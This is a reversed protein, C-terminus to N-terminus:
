EYRLAEVPRARSVLLAHGTVTVLAIGLALASALLFQLPGLEVHYAFGELWRQMFFWAVPWAILNAVLVPRAFQWGIFRLIDARSAGMCKRIGIERTRREATFIALGLLGLSAVVIAVACIAAFLRAQRSIDSYLDDLMQSLFRGRFQLGGMVEGYAAEVGRLTQPMQTGDLRLYLSFAKQPDVYYGTPAIRERISGLSFDPVVGIIRSPRPDPRQRLSPGDSGPRIWRRYQGVAEAPTAYGLARAAAENLVISPHDGAAQGGRELVVDEGHERDPLRGALPAIGLLRLHDVDVPSARVDVVSGDPSTFVMSAGTLDWESGCSASRVGPLSAVVERLGPAVACALQVTFVQDGPVRLQEELAFRTQRHVTLTAVLMAVLTAFQLVVMAQRLRGPGGPLSVVGKLVNVPRFRSLVLAPYSGAALGVVLWLAFVGGALRPDRAFDFGIGRGLLANVGPLLLWVAALAVLMALAASLLCEALFQAVIQRPMAGVSKRVGVEVARGAARATMMSIFNGAAAILIVLGILALNRVAQRNGPRQLEATPGAPVFHIDPVPLLSLRVAAGQANSTAKNPDHRERFGEMAANIREVSAGSRLRVYTYVNGPQIIAPNGAMEALETLASNNALGSGVADMRLHTNWPLDELVATVVVTQQRNLLVPRGVVDHEGDFLQQAIRRTIVLGDPRDLATRIDGAVAPFPFMRFFDPDAFHLYEPLVEIDGHRLTRLGRTLRAAYEIEPFELELAAAMNVTTAAKQLPAKGPQTVLTQLRYTREAGPLQSDWSHEDRVYLAILLVAALGLSLGLINIAAYTGNRFLNHLAATLVSPWM